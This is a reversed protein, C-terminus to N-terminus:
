LCLICGLGGLYHQTVVCAEREHCYRLEALGSNPLPHLM